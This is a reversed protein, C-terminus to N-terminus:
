LLFHILHSNEKQMGGGGIKGYILIWYIGWLKYDFRGRLM